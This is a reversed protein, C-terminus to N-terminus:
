DGISVLGSDSSMAKQTIELLDQLMQRGEDPGKYNQLLETGLIYNCIETIQPLDKKSVKVNDYPDIQCLKSVDISVQGRMDMKYIFHQLEDSFEVNDDQFNIEDISNGIYFNM